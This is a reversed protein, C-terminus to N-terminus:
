ASRRRLAIVGGVLALAIGAGVIPWRWAALASESSSGEGSSRAQAQAQRAITTPLPQGDPTTLIERTGTRDFVVSRSVARALGQATARVAEPTFAPEDQPLSGQMLFKTHRTRSWFWPFAPDRSALGREHLTPDDPNAITVPHGKPGLRLTLTHLKNGFDIAQQTQPLTRDGKVLELRATFSGDPEAALSRVFHPLASIARALFLPTYYDIEGEFDIRHVAEVSWPEPEFAPPSATWLRGDPARVKVEGSSAIIAFAGTSPQVRVITTNQAGVGPDGFRAEHIRSDEFWPALAAALKAAADRSAPDAPQSPPAFALPALAILGLSTLM